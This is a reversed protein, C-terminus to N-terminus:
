CGAKACLRPFRKPLDDEDWREGAPGETPHERAGEYEIGREELVEAAVYAIEENEAMGEFDVDALSEPAKLASEYVWEGQAVLWSRFYEFGDNSCGGNLIYAAGWLDWRYARIVLRAFIRDFEAVDENSLPELGERLTEIQADADGESELSSREIIQWFRKEDL